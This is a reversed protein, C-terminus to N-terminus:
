YRGDSDIKAATGTAAVTYGPIAAEVGTWKSCSAAAHADPALGQAIRCPAEEDDRGAPRRHARRSPRVLVGGNAIAAYARAMQRRSRSGTGSPSPETTSGSWKDLLLRLRRNVSTSAPRSGSGLRDIRRWGVRAWSRAITITGINSSYEVIQKVTLRETRATGEGIV